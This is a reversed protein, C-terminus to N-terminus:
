TLWWVAVGIGVVALACAYVILAMGTEPDHSVAAKAM